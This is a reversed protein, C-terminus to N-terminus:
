LNSAKIWDVQINFAGEQKDSILIGMQCISSPDLKPYDRLRYGRFQPYFDALTLHIEEWEDITTKFSTVYSAGDWRNNTWLRFSYQNGDGRVRLTIHSYDQLNLTFPVTRCSAFGGNNELSVNGSFTM